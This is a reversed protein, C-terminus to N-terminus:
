SFSCLIVYRTCGEGGSSHYITESYRLSLSVPTLVHVYTIKIYSTFYQVIIFKIRKGACGYAALSWTLKSVDGQTKIKYLEMVQTLKSAAALPLTSLQHDLYYIM